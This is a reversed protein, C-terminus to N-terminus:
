QRIYANSSRLTNLGNDSSSNDINISAYIRLWVQIHQLSIWRYWVFSDALMYLESFGLSAYIHTPLSVMMSEFIIAQRRSPQFITWQVRPFLSRHFRLRFTNENFFISKFNDDPLQRGNKEAEIHYDYQFCSFWVTFRQSWLPLKEIFLKTMFYVTSKSINKNNTGYRGPESVQAM